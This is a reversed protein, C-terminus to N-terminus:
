LISLLMADKASVDVVLLSNGVIECDEPEGLMIDNLPIFSDRQKTTLNYVEVGSTTSNTGWVFFARNGYVKVGQWTSLGMDYSPIKFSDVLDAETLTINGESIQPLRLKYFYTQKATPVGMIAWLYGDDGVVMNPQMGSNNVEAINLDITQMLTSGSDTLQEVYCRSIYNASVYLLPYNDQHISVFQCANCHNSEGNSGLPFSNILTANVLGKSIDYIHATGYNELRVLRNNWTAVGQLNKSTMTLSHIPKAAYRNRSFVIPEGIYHRTSEIEREILEYVSISSTAGEEARIAISYFYGDESDIDYYSPINEYEYIREFLDVGDTSGIPKKQVVLIAYGYGRPAVQFNNIIVRYKRNPTLQFPVDVFVNKGKGVYPINIVKSTVMDKIEDKIEAVDGAIGSPPGEVIGNCSYGTKTKASIRYTYGDEAYIEYYEPLNNIDTLRDFIDVGDTSGNPVKQIALFGYSAYYYNWDKDIKIRYTEGAKFDFNVSAYESEPTGSPISFPIITKDASGIESELLSVDQELNTARETLSTVQKGIQNNSQILSDVKLTLNDAKLISVSWISGNLIWGGIKTGVIGEITVSEGAVFTKRYTQTSGNKIQISTHGNNLNTIIYKTAADIAIDFWFAATSGQSGTFIKKDGNVESELETLKGGYSDGVEKAYDGQMNAYNAADKLFNFSVKKSLNNKDTGITYLGELDTTEPLESIKIDAM